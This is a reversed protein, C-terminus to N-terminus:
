QMRSMQPRMNMEKSCCRLQRQLAAVLQRLYSNM